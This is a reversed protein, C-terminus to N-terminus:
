VRKDKEGSDAAQDRGGGGDCLDGRGGGGGLRDRGSGGFLRDKGGQGAIVDAGGAGCILDNGGRGRVTDAGGGAAIVDNGPTGSLTEAASTGPITATTGKCSQTAGGGGGGGGPPDGDDDGGGPPTPGECIVYARYTQQTGTINYVDVFWGRPISGTVINAAGNEDVPASFAISGLRGGTTGLGGGLAREGTPCIVAKQGSQGNAVNFPEAQVTARSTASCMAFTQFTAATPENHRVSTFWSRAVDGDDTGVVTRTADLPNNVQIVGSGPSNQAAVGGAIAREDAECDTRNGGEFATTFLSNRVIADSSASCIAYATYSQPAGTLNVIAIVWGTPRQLPSGFPWTERIVSAGSGGSPVFGVGGGTAFQGAPCEPRAPKYEGAPVGSMPVAVATADDGPSAHAQPAGGVGTFVIALALWIRRVGKGGSM